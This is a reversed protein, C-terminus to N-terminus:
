ETFISYGISFDKFFTGQSWNGSVLRKGKAFNEPSVRIQNDQSFHIYNIVLKAKDFDNRVKYNEDLLDEYICQEWKYDKLLQNEDINNKVLFKKIEDPLIYEIKLIKGNLEIDKIM